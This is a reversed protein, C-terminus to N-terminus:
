LPPPTTYTIFALCIMWGQLINLVKFVWLNLTTKIQIIPRFHLWTPPSFTPVENEVRAIGVNEPGCGFSVWRKLNVLHVWYVSTRGKIAILTWYEDCFPLYESVSYRELQKISSCGSPSYELYRLELSYEGFLYGLNHWYLSYINGHIAWKEHLSSM